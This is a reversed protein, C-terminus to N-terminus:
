AISEFKLGDSPEAAADPLAPLSGEGPNGINAQTPNGQALRHLGALTKVSEPVAPGVALGHVFECLNSVPM